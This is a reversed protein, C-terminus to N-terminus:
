SKNTSASPYCFKITVTTVDAAIEDPTGFEELGQVHERGFLIRYPTKYELTSHQSTNISYQGALNYQRKNNYETNIKELFLHRCTNGM